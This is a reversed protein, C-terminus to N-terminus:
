SRVQSYSSRISRREMIAAVVLVLINGCEGLSFRELPERGVCFFILFLLEFLVV